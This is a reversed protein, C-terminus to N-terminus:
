QCSRRLRHSVLLLSIATALLASAVYGGGPLASFLRVEFLQAYQLNVWAPQGVLQVREIDNLDPYLWRLLLLSQVGFHLLIGLLLDISLGAVLLQRPATSTPVRAAIWAIALLALPLLSINAVGDPNPTSHTAIGLVLATLIVVAWFRGTDRPWPRPLRALLWLAIAFGTTGALLPLNSQFLFFCADRFRGLSDHAFVTGAGDGRLFAPLLTSRFNVEMFELRQSWSMEMGPSLSTNSGFTTTVGLRWCSWIFWPASVLVAPVADVIWDRWQRWSKPLRGAVALALGLAAIWPGASFHTLAAAALCLFVIRSRWRPSPFTQHLLAFALLIFFATQLKTWLFTAQQVYSPLAMLLVASWIPNSATAGAFRRQLLVLPWFVVSATLLMLLQYTGFGGGTLDFYTAIVVNLLPPRAALPYRYLFLHDVPWHEAFFLAREYHEVWDGAWGAGSFVQVTMGWGCTWAAVALWLLMLHRLDTESWLAILVTCRRVVLGAAIAVTGFLATAPLALAYTTFGVLYTLLLSAGIGMTVRTAGDGCRAPILLPGVAFTLFGFLLLCSM